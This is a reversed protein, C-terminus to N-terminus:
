YKSIMFKFSSGLHRQVEEPFTVSSKIVSGSNYNILVGTGCFQTDWPKITKKWAAM